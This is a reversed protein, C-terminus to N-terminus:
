RWRCGGMNVQCRAQSFTRLHDIEVFIDLLFPLADLTFLFDLLLLTNLASLSLGLTFLLPQHQRELPSELSERFRLWRLCRSENRRSHYKRNRRKPGPRLRSAPAAACM